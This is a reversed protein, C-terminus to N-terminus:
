LCAFDTRSSVTRAMFIGCIGFDVKRCKASKMRKGRAGETQEWRPTEASQCLRALNKCKEKCYYKLFCGGTNMIGLGAQIPNLAAM